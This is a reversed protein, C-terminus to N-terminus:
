RRPAGFPGGFFCSFEQGRVFNTFRKRWFYVFDGEIAANVDHLAADYVKEGM